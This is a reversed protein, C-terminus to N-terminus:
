PPLNAFPADRAHREVVTIIVLDPRFESLIQDFWVPDKLVDGWPHRLLGSFTATMYPALAAGFSDDLWLVKLDNLAGESYTLALGNAHAEAGGRGKATGKLVYAKQTTKVSKKLEVAIEKDELFDVLRLFNSLDGGKRTVANRIVIQDADLWRIHPHQRSIHQALHVYGVWAGLSNWHTDTKYYFDESFRNRAALLAGRLDLLTTANGQEAVFLDANNPKSGRRAWDPLKDAYVTHKNPAIAVYLGRGGGSKVRLDWQSRAEAMNKYLGAKLKVSGRAESLVSNYQDGLFLWQEKGIIVQDPNASIGRQYLWKVLSQSYIFDTSFLFTKSFIKKTKEYPWNIILNIAPVLLVVSLFAIAFLYRSKM